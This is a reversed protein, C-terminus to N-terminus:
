YIFSCIIDTLTRGPIDINNPDDYWPRYSQQPMHHFPLICTFLLTCFDGPLSLGLYSFVILFSMVFFPLPAHLSNIQSPIPVPPPAGTSVTISGWSGYFFPFKKVLQPVTLTDLLSWTCPTRLTDATNNFQRSYIQIQLINTNFSLNAFYIYDFVPVYKCISNTSTVYYGPLWFSNLENELTDTQVATRCEVTIASFM